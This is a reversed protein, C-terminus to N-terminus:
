FSGVRRVDREVFPEPKPDDDVKRQYGVAGRVDGHPTRYASGGLGSLRCDGTLTSDISRFDFGTPALPVKRSPPSVGTWRSPKPSMLIVPGPIQPGGASGPSHTRTSCRATSRPTSKM